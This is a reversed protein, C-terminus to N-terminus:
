FNAVHHTASTVRDWPRAPGSGARKLSRASPPQRYGTSARSTRKAQPRDPLPALQGDCLQARLRWCRWRLAISGIDSNMATHKNAASFEPGTVDTISASARKKAKSESEKHKSVAKIAADGKSSEAVKHEYKQQAIRTRKKQQEM